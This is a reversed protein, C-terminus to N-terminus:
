TSAQLPSITLPDLNIMSILVAHAHGTVTNQGPSASKKQRLFILRGTIGWAGSFKQFRFNM